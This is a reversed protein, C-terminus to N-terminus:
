QSISALYTRIAARDTASIVASFLCGGYFKDVFASPFGNRAGFSIGTLNNGAFAGSKETGNLDIIANVSDFLGGLTVTNATDATATSTLSSGGPNSFLFFTSTQTVATKTGHCQNTAGGDFATGQGGTAFKAAAYISYPQNVALTRTFQDDVGDFVLWWYNGSNRLTPRAADSPSTYDLGSFPCTAVRVLHGDATAQTTKGADQWLKNQARSLAVFVGSHFSSVKAPSWSGGSTGLGIGLGLRPM